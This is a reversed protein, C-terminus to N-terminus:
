HLPICEHKRQKGNVAWSWTTHKTHPHKTLVRQCFQHICDQDKGEGEGKTAVAAGWVNGEM